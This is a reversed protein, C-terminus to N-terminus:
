EGVRPHGPRDTAGASGSTVAKPVTFGFTAGQGPRSDVWVRGRQVSVLQKVIALGLGAGGTERARSGDVRYFREFVHPLHDAGIGPGDDRVTIEIERDRERAEVQIRGGPPAHTMANILLNRVIQRFRAPDAEVDPLPPIAMEVTPGGAGGGPQLAGVVRHIEDALPFSRPELRLKGAEALSLDQLDIVLRSLVIVEEQLSGLVEPTPDLLGDQIAELQGRINTLPTRLDHAIDSVMQRRLREQRELSEAMGNFARALEGVEDGSTAPVRRGLDGAAMRRAAATLQEVPGLIRSAVAATAAMALLGGVVLVLWLWRDVSRLFRVGPANQVQPLDPILHLSGVRLAGDTLDVRLGQVVVLEERRGAETARVRTIRLHGGPGLEVSGPELDRATTSLLEGGPGLLVLQHAGGSRDRLEELVPRVGDWSGRERFHENLRGRHADLDVSVPGETVAEMELFHEFELRTALSSVIGAAGVSLAVVIGVAVLLRSRLSRLM